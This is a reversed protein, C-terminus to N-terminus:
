TRHSSNLRTSKRDTRSTGTAGLWVLNSRPLGSAMRSQSRVRFGNRFRRVAASISASISSSRDHHSQDIEIGADGDVEHLFMGNPASAYRQGESFGPKAPKGDRGQGFHFTQNARKLPGIGHQAVFEDIKELAKGRDIHRLRNIEICRREGASEPKFRGVRQMEGARLVM